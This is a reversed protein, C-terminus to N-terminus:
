DDGAGGKLKFVWAYLCPTTSPSIHPPKIRIDDSNQSFIVHKNSGLLTVQKVKSVKRLVIEEDPYVSLIVFLDGHFNRTFFTTSKDDLTPAHVWRRTEYISENNVSLWLGM